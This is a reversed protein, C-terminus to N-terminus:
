LPHQYVQKLGDQTPLHVFRCQEKVHQQEPGEAVRAMKDKSCFKGPNPALVHSTIQRSINNNAPSFGVIGQLTTLCNKDGSRLLLICHTETKSERCNDAFKCSKTTIGAIM